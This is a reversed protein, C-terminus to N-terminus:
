SSISKDPSEDNDSVQVRLVTITDGGVTTVGGGSIGSKGITGCRTTEGIISISNFKSILLYM